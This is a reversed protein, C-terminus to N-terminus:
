NDPYFDLNLIQNPAYPCQQPFIEEPLNTEGMALDRGNDYADLIAESLYAKLSPNEKILKLIDRRQVRITALWSRSRQESQYQWQLLQSLLIALHSRLQQRQQRGLSKIEEILNELDLKRWQQNSLIETQEKTWAYFDSHYTSPSSMSNYGQEVDFALM